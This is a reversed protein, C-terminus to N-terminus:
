NSVGVTIQFLLLKVWIPPCTPMSVAVVDSVRVDRIGGGPDRQSWIANGRAPRGLQREASADCKRSHARLMQRLMEPSRRAGIAGILFIL